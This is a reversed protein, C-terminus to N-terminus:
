KGESANRGAIRRRRGYWLGLLGSGMLTLTAPEPIPTGVGGFSGDRIPPSCTPCDVSQWKIYINDFTLSNITGLFYLSATVSATAGYGVGGSAGGACNVATFCFEVTGVGYPFNGSAVKSYAGTVTSTAATPPDLVINPNTNFAMIAIRSDTIPSSSTNHVLVNFTVNTYPTGALTVPTFTFGSFTAEATLGPILPGNIPAAGGFTVIFSGGGSVTIPDAVSTAVVTFAFALALLLLRAPRM